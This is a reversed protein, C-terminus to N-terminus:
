PSRARACPAPSRAPGCRSSRGTRGAFGSRRRRCCASVRSRVRRSFAVGAGTRYRDRDDEPGLRSRGSSRLSSRGSRRRPAKRGAPGQRHPAEGSGGAEESASRCRTELRRTSGRAATAPSASATPSDKRGRGGSRVTLGHTAPEIGARPAMGEAAAFPGRLPNVCGVRLRLARVDRKGAHQRATRGIRERRPPNEATRTRSRPAM